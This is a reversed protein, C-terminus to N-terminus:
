RDRGKKRVKARGAKATKDEWGGIDERHEGANRRNTFDDTDARGVHLRQSIQTNQQLQPWQVKEEM